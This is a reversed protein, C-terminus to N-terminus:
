SRWGCRGHSRLSRSMASDDPAGHSTTASIPKHQLLEAIVSDGAQRAATTEYGTRGGTLPFGLKRYMADMTQTDVVEEHELVELAHQLEHAILALLQDHSRQNKDPTVLIRLFRDPGIHGVFSLLCGNLHGFACYGFEVYVIGDSREITDVLGSFTTSRNGGERLLDLVAASTSRVRAAHPEAAATKISGVVTLTCTALVSAALHRFQGPHIFVM